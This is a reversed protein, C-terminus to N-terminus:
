TIRRRPEDVSVEPFVIPVGGITPGVLDLSGASLGLGCYFPYVVAVFYLVIYM